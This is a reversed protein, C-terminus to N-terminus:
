AAKPLEFLNEWGRRTMEPRLKRKISDIECRQQASEVLVDPLAPSQPIELGTFRCIQQIAFSSVEENRRLLQELKVELCNASQLQNRVQEQQIELLEFSAIAQDADITEVGRCALQEAFCTLMNDRVFHVVPYNSDVLWETFSTNEVDFTRDEERFLMESVPGYTEAILPRSARGIPEVMKELRQSHASYATGLGSFLELAPLQGFCQNLINARNNPMAVFFVPCCDSASM